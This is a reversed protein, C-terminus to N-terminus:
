GPYLEMVSKFGEHKLDNEFMEKTVSTRIIEESKEKKVELLDDQIEDLLSIGNSNNRAFDSYEAKRNINELNNEKPKDIAFLNNYFLIVLLFIIKLSNKM